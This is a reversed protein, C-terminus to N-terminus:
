FGFEVIITKMAEQLQNVLNVVRVEINATGSTGNKTLVLRSGGYFPGRSVQRGNMLWSYEVNDSVVDVLSFFYPHVFLTLEEQGEELIVREDIAKEYRVGLLPDVEYFVAQFNSSPRILAGGYGVLAGDTTAVEVNVLSQESSFPLDEMVFTSRGYGSVRGQVQGDQIWKYVLREQPILVGSDPDVFKPIAVFSLSSGRSYLAKGKYFPPVSTDVEWIINVETPQLTMSSELVEGNNKHLVVNIFTRSGLAKTRVTIEKRGIGSAVQVGDVYWTIDSSAVDASSTDLSIRTETYPRPYSPSASLYLTGAPNLGPFVLQASAPYIGAFIMTIFFVAVLIVIYVRALM